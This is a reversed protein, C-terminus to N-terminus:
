EKNDTESMPCNQRAQEMLKIEKLRYAVWGAAIGIFCIVGYATFLALVLGSLDIFGGGGTGTGYIVLGATWVIFPIFLPVKRLQQNKAKACIVYELAALAIVTVVAIIILSYDKGNIM